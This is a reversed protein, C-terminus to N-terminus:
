TECQCLRYKKVRSRNRESLQESPMFDLHTIPPEQSQIRSRHPLHISTEQNAVQISPYSPCIWCAAVARQGDQKSILQVAALIHDQQMGERGQVYNVRALLAHMLDFPSPNKGTRASCLPAHMNLAVTHVIGGQGAQFEREGVRALRTRDRTPNTESQAILSNLSHTTEQSKDNAWIAVSTTMLLCESVGTSSQRECRV